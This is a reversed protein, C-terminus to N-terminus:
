RPEKFVVAPFKKIFDVIEQFNNALDDNLSVLSSATEENYKTQLYKISEKSHNLRGNGAFLGLEPYDLELTKVLIDETEYNYSDQHIQNEDLEGNIERWVGLCCYERTMDKYETCLYKEGKYYKGSELAELWKTQNPGLKFSM